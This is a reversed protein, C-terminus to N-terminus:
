KIFDEMQGLVQIKHICYRKVLFSAGEQVEKKLQKLRDIVTQKEEQTVKPTVVIQAVEM